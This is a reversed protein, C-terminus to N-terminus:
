PTGSNPHEYVSAPLVGKLRFSSTLKQLRRFAKEERLAAKDRHLRLDVQALTYRVQSDDPRIQKSHELERAAASFQGERFLALGLMYHTAFNDPALKLAQRAYREAATYNANQLYIAALELRAPVNDPQVALEARFAAQASPIQNEAALLQGYNYQVYPARPDTKVIQRMVKAAAATDAGQLDFAEQGMRRVLGRRRPGLDRDLQEPLLPLHLAALGFAALIGPSSRHHLAFGRLLHTAQPYEELIILDQAEDYLAVADLNASPLGLSRGEQLHSFSMGFDRAEFDCLGLMAWPAGHKPDLRTLHGFAQRAAGVHHAEYLLTGLDWLGEKWDPSQRLAATLAQVAPGTQGAAVAARAAQQLQATSPRSQAAAASPLALLFALGLAATARRRPALRQSANRGRRQRPRGPEARVSRGGSGGGAPRRFRLGPPKGWERESGLGGTSGERLAASGTRRSM